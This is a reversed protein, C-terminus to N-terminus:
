NALHPPSAESIKGIVVDEYREGEVIAEKPILKGYM